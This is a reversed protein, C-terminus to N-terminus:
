LSRAPRGELPLLARLRANEGPDLVSHQVCAPVIRDQDPHAMAYSCAQLREQAERVKPDSATEGREMAEWAPAVVAADIFAHVVFTMGRPRGTILRIPGARRILRGAWGVATPVVRPHRATARAVAVAAIAAPRDFDMGGFADLFLDRAHLDRPDRDDLLPTWHGRALIGYASRNCRADGMQLHRWPLRTGVGREVEAWVRDIDVAHYEERWRKPNGVYAAPQFSLMGFGMGLCARTVNAVEDLNRPTVTMNHALDFRVGHERELREFQEVFRRRYPHLEADSRPRPIGRRGLMLSDFHGAFRLQEFRRQGDPGVALRELYGYDVDGHTMSMPKRGHARMAALAAAHDDPDLLTVEGGILQAHQGTGRTRRLYAMQRDVEAVTHPGDTRVTQAVSAHYCPTCALDCRPFVGHTGECGATRRGLLQASTRVADPLGDWRDRLARDTDPDVPRTADALRRLAAIM